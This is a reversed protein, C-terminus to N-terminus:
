PSRPKCDWGEKFGTRKDRRRASYGSDVKSSKAINELKEIRNSLKSM